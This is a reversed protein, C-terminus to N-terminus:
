EKSVFRYELNEGVRPSSVLQFRLKGIRTKELYEPDLVIRSDLVETPETPEVVWLDMKPERIEISAQFLGYHLIAKM